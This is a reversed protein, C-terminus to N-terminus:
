ISPWKPHIAVRALTSDLFGEPQPMKKQDAIDM